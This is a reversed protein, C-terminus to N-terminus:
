QGDHEIEHYRHNKEELQVLADEIIYTNKPRSSMYLSRLRENEDAIAFRDLHQCIDYVDPYLKCMIRLSESSEKYTDYDTVPLQDSVFPRIYFRDLVVRPPILGPALISKNNLTQWERLCHLKPRKRLHDLCDCYSVVKRRLAAPYMQSFSPLTKQLFYYPINITKSSGDGFRPIYSFTPSTPNAKLQKDLSHALFGLWGIAGKQRSAVIFTNNKGPPIFNDKRMYKTVYSGAKSDKCFVAYIFGNSWSDRFIRYAENTLHNRQEFSNYEACFLPLGWILAHYHPRHRKSGYESCAIYRIEIPTHYHRTLNIRLRKFYRQLHDLVVGDHPLSKNNYTLTLMLPLMDHAECELAARSSWELSKRDRCLRCHGCGVLLFLPLKEGFHVVYPVLREFLSSDGNYSPRHAYAWRLMINEEQKDEYPLVIKRGDHTYFYGNKLYIHKAKQNLISVPHECKVTSKM